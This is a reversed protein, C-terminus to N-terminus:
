FVEAPDTALVRRVALAASVLCMGLTLFLSVLAIGASMALPILALEAILRYLGLSLVFAPLWGALASLAAQELVTRILYFRRYGMAKLTAYQPLQESLDAYIVQYSILMGVVFGVITGMAFIPGASSLTAQFKRELDLLQAKTLVAIDPPLAARLRKIVSNRDAGPALKIIGAEVGTEPFLQRMTQASMMVTGDSQFDPGLAFSGVVRMRRGNIESSPPPPDMGLFPRARRDVLVGDAAKLEHAQARVEPFRFVPRDPDFAFARVLLVKGDSPNKWYTDFWHAYLPSASAVGPVAGAKDVLDPAFPQQTVFSYKHVSAIVLDADLARIIQFSSNFFAAEFGLQMVMLLVAFGIGASARILRPKKAVLNYWALPVAGGAVLRARRFSLPAARDSSM